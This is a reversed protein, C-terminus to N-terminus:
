AGIKWSVLLSFKINLTVVPLSDASIHPRRYNPLAMTPLISRDPTEEGTMAALCMAGSVNCPFSSVM